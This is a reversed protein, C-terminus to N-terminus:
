GRAMQFGYREFVAQAADSGLFAVFTQAVEPAKSSALVAVPYILPSHHDPTATAIVQVAKSIQADTAYVLGADVNGTEVYTLVQRVNSGFVLKPELKEYLDLATLVEKAYQGAPVSDPNGLAIKGVKDGVLDQFSTIGETRKSTVLVVQNQLLDQRTQTELLEQTELDDMQQPAASIYVDVPAGQEIQRQLAGSSAFNYDVRVTPSQDRYIQAVERMADQLSAAASITLTVSTEGSQSFGPASCATMLSVLGLGLFRRRHM